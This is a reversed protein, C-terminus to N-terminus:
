RPLLSISPSGKCAAFRNVFHKGNAIPCGGHVGLMVCPFLCCIVVVAKVFPRRCGPGPAADAGNYLPRTEARGGTRRREGALGM